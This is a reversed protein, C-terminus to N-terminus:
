FPPEVDDHRTDYASSRRIQLRHDCPVPAGPETELEALIAILDDEDTLAVDAYAGCACPAILTLVHVLDQEEDGVGDDRRTHHLWWGRRGDETDGLYSVASSMLANETVRPHGTWEYRQVVPDLTDGFVERLLSDAQIVALLALQEARLRAREDHDLDRVQRHLAVIPSPEAPRDHQEAPSGLSIVTM